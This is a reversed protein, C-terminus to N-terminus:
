IIQWINLVFHYKSKWLFVQESNSNSYKNGFFLLLRFPEPLQGILLAKSVIFTHWFQFSNSVYFLKIVLNVLYQIIKNRKLVAFIVYYIRAISIISWTYIASMFDGYVKRNFPLSIDVFKFSNALQIAPL